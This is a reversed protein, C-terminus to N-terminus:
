RGAVALTALKLKSRLLSYAYRLDRSPEPLRISSVREGKRLYLHNFMTQTIGWKRLFQRPGPNREVRGTSKCQFHYVMSDGVGIFIRCGERWLKMALDPDSSMGPSFDEGLGGVSDWLKRPMVFPCYSSGYWDPIALQTFRALLEGERFAEISRGFDQLSVCPNRSGVPEIMSGSVMFPESAFTAIRALLLEDWRPLCYMDDNICCMLEGSCTAVARNVATCIGVNAPSHTYRIGEGDLFERTGDNGENVHVVIPHHHTSHTRISRICLKLYPLNNWSPIVVEFESM